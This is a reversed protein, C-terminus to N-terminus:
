FIFKVTNGDEQIFSSSLKSKRKEELRLKFSNEQKNIDSIMFDKSRNLENTQDICAKVKKSNDALNVKVIYSQSKTKKDM